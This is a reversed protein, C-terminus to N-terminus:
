EPWDIPGPTSRVELNRFEAVDLTRLALDVGWEIGFWTKYRIKEEGNVAVTIYEAEPEYLLQIDMWESIDDTIAASMVRAMNIDDSSRYLELYTRDTGYERVDRTFWLLLSEGYGYGRKEVGDAFIHIGFGVWGAGRSRADFSYLTPRADQPMPLESKAFFEEPDTQALVGSELSWTGIQTEAMSFGQQRVESLEDSIAAIYGEAFLASRVEQQIQAREASLRANEVRLDSVIAELEGIRRLYGSVEGESAMTGGASEAEAPTESVAETGANERSEAIELAEELEVIRDELIAIKDLLVEIRQRLLESDAADAAEDSEVAPEGAGSSSELLALEEQLSDVEADLNAKETLLQGVQEVLRLNEQRLVGIEESLDGVQAALASNREGLAAQSASIGSVDDVSYLGADDTVRSLSAGTLKGASLTGPLVVSDDSIALTTSYSEGDIIIGDISLGDETISVTAFDLVVNAPLLPSDSEPALESVVWNGGIDRFIVSYRTGDMLVSRIVFTGPGAISLRADSFDVSDLDLQSLDVVSDQAGIGTGIYLFIIMGYIFIRKRINMEEGLFL